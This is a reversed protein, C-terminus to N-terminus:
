VQTEHLTARLFDCMVSLNNAIVCMYRELKQTYKIVSNELDILDRENETSAIGTPMTEDFEPVNATNQFGLTKAIVSISNYIRYLDTPHGRKLAPAIENKGYVFAIHQNKMEIQEIIEDLQLGITHLNQYCISDFISAIIDGTGVMQKDAFYMYKYEDRTYLKHIMKRKEWEARVFGTAVSEGGGAMVTKNVRHM